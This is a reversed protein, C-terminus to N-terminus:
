RFTNGVDFLPRLPLSLVRFVLGLSLAFGGLSINVNGSHDTMLFAPVRLLAFLLTLASTVQGPLTGAPVKLEKIQVLGVRLAFAVGEGLESGDTSSFWPSLPFDQVKSKKKM